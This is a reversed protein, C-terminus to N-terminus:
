NITVGAAKGVEVWRRHQVAIYAAFEDPANRTAELGVKALLQRIEAAQMGDNLAVNLV